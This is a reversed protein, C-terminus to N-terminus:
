CGCGGGECGCAEDGRPACAALEEAAVRLREAAAEYQVRYKAERGSREVELVGARLLVSLHRSVVSLDVSCCAGVESVGCGRGCKAICALLALRTPDALAKFFGADLARDM